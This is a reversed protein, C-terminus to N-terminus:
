LGRQRTMCRAKCTARACDVTTQEHLARLARAKRRTAAETTDDRHLTPVVEEKKLLSGVPEEPLLLGPGSPRGITHGGAVGYRRGSAAACDGRACSSLLRARAAARVRISSVWGGGTPGRRFGPRGTRRTTMDGSKLRDRGGGKVLGRGGRLRSAAKHSGLESATGSSRGLHRRQEPGPIRHIGPGDCCDASRRLSM